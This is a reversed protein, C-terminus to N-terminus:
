KSTNLSPLIIPPVGACGMASSLVARVHPFLEARTMENILDKDINEEDGDCTFIAQIEIYVKFTKDEENKPLISLKSTATYESSLDVTHQLEIGIELDETKAYRNIITIETTKIQSIDINM